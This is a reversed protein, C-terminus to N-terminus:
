LTLSEGPKLPHPIAQTSAKLKEAFAHADAVIPPFTDYHVPLVAKARLFEAAKVADDIGMTFVDGIPLLALDISNREGILKMDLFLSTDGAHFITKGDLTLLIGVPNGMYLFGNETTLSSSHHAITLKVRGFPFQQAGGINMGTTQLGQDAFYTAIEHNAIVTAGTRKAISVTDGVHDDHGHTLLIYDCEIDEAKAAAKTNGTLFPDILLRHSTTEILVCSHGLYTIKM